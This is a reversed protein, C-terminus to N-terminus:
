PRVTVRSRIAELVSAPVIRRTVLEDASAFRGDRNRSEVIRQARSPGIGPLADLEELTARNLDLPEAPPATLDTAQGGGPTVSTAEGVRPVHVHAEDAIRLALNIRAADADATLGGAAQVLDDLRAGDQLTYVGPRAVAGEIYAAVSAAPVTGIEVASWGAPRPAVLLLLAVAATVGLAWPLLLAAVRRVSERM